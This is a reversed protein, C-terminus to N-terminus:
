WYVQVVVSTIDQERHVKWKVATCPRQHRHSCHTHSSSALTYLVSRIIGADNLIGDVSERIEHLRHKVISM